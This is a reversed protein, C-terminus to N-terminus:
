ELKEIISKSAEFYNSNSPILQLNIKAQSVNDLKLYSLALYWQAQVKINKDINKNALQQFTDRAKQPKNLVFECSGKAIQAQTNDPYKSFLSLAKHYDQSDFAQQAITLDNTEGSRSIFDVTTPEFHQEALQKPDVEGLGIYFILLAAAALGIVPALWRLVGSNSKEVTLPKHDSSTNPKMEVVKAEIETETHNIIYKEGFQQFLAKIEEKNNIKKAMLTQDVKQHFHLEKVLLPDSALLQEFELLAEGTLENNIYQNM